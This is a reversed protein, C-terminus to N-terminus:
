MALNDGSRNGPCGSGWVLQGGHRRRCLGRSVNVFDNIRLWRERYRLDERRGLEVLLVTEDMQTRRPLHTLDFLEGGWWCWCWQRYDDSELRLRRSEFYVEIMRSAGPM